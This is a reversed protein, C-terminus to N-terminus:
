ATFSVFYHIFYQIGRLYVPEQKYAETTLRATPDFSANKGLRNTKINENSDRTQEEVGLKRLSVTACVM